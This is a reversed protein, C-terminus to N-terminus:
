KTQEIIDELARDLTKTQEIVDELADGLEVKTQEIIDELADGLEILECELVQIAKQLLRKFSHAGRGLCRM